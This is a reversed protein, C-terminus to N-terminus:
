IYPQVNVQAVPVISLYETLHYELRSVNVTCGRHKKMYLKM